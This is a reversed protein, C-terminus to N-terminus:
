GVPDKLTFYRNAQWALPRAKEDVRYDVAEALYVIYKGVPYSTIVRCELSAYSGKIGPAAITKSKETAIKFKAFKDVKDGHTAGLAKALKVQSASAINLVFEASEEILRCTTSSKAASVVFYAPDESVFMCTATMADKKQKAAASLLVVSCPILRTLPSMKKEM